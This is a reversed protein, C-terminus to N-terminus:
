RRSMGASGGAAVVGASSAGLRQGIGLVLMTVILILVGMAGAGGFDLLKQTRVAMMQAILSQQPSGILAPTIYFGLSLTFVLTSGAIVGPRSLPLFVTRFATLRSAGMTGAADILRADIQSMASYLPLIMFPLLVGIMVITVGPITGILVVGHIGIADFMREVAGGRQLLVYWAYNRALMSTWFPILAITILAARALPSSQCLVLSFPYALLLTVLTVLLGILVTRLLVNLTVGDTFLAVYNGLGPEPETVSRILMQALPLLFFLILAALAPLMLLATPRLAPGRRSAVRAKGLTLRAEVREM